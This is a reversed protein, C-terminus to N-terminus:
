LNDTRGTSKSTEWAGNQYLWTNAKLEEEYVPNFLSQIDALKAQIAKSNSSYKRTLITLMDHTKGHRQAYRVLDFWRKGECMFERQREALVLAELSEPTNFSTFNLSDTKATSSNSGKLYAYPNSRKFVERVYNFAIKLNEEDTYIQSMAEAKMLYVESMRYMIFNADGLSSTSSIADFNSATNDSMITSAGNSQTHSKYIYKFPTFKAQGAKEFKFTSWRRYDTKPFITSASTTNPNSLVGELLSTVGELSGVKSNTVNYFLNSVMVNSSQTGNFPLEWITENAYGDGFITTYAGDSNYSPNKIRALYTSLISMDSFDNQELLDCLEIKSGSSASAYNAYSSKKFKDMLENSALEIVKDCCEVCKKYDEEATTNYARNDDDLVITEDKIYLENYTPVIRNTFPHCNGAKYSARWLYVDALITYVAKKTIRSKNDTKNGFDEMAIDKVAELDSIISDLVALQPIQQQRLEQSSNNYDVDVYPIEGYTRVLYFHCLARLAIMEARIPAWDSNNFSEDRKIVDEGHVLVKNCNNIVNYVITWDFINNTPLLNANMINAENSTAPQTSEREFNDSRLEGWYMFKTIVDSTAMRKYSAYVANNLDSKDQWFEEEVTRDTPTITLFDDCSTLFSGFGVCGVLMINKIFSKM